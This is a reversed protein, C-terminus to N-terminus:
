STAGIAALLDSPSERRGARVGPQWDRWREIRESTGLAHEIDNFPRGRDNQGSAWDDQGINRVAALCDQLGHSALAKEIRRQRDSTLQTRTTDRRTSTVWEAFVVEVDSASPKLRPQNESPEPGGTETTHGPPDADHSQSDPSEADHSAILDLVAQPLHEQRQAATMPAREGGWGPALVTWDSTRSGNPRRREARALMCAAELRRLARGATDPVIGCQAALHAQGPFGVGASNSANAIAVLVFKDTGGVRAQSFAWTVAEVSM